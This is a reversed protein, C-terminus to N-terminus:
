DRLLAIFEDFTREIIKRRGVKYEPKPELADIEEDYLKLTSDKLSILETREPRPAHCCEVLAKRVAVAAMLSDIGEVETAPSIKDDVFGAVDCVFDLADDNSFNGEAWAGM